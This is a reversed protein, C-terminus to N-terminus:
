KQSLIKKRYCFSRGTVSNALTLKLWSSEALAVITKELPQWTSGLGKKRKCFRKETVYVLIQWMKRHCISSEILIFFILNKGTFKQSFNRHFNPTETIESLSSLLKTSGQRLLGILDNRPRIWDSRPIWILNPQKLASLLRKSSRNHEPPGM